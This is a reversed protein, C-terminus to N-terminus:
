RVKVAPLYLDESYYPTASPTLTPLPTSQVMPEVGVDIIRYITNGIAIYLEGDRDLGFTTAGIGRGEHLVTNQWVGNIHRAGYIASTCHDSHFYRGHMRPFVTGRYVYGGIIACPAGAQRYVWSPKLFQGAACPKYVYDGEFCSWGFNEGGTSGAPIVTLEEWEGAGVDALYLDDTAGDFSFRYPNRLGVQWIESRYGPVDVFPNDAPISYTLPQNTEVDIRMMKGLLTGPNQAYHYPDGHDLDFFGGDGIGFYLMGDPGFDLGGGYHLALYDLEPIDVRIVIQASGPDAEDPNDTRTRYRVILVDNLSDVYQVYFTRTETFHPSFTINMIGGGDATNVLPRIDLFETPTSWTGNTRTAVHIVGLREAILM